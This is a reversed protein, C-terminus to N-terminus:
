QGIMIEFSFEESRGVGPGLLVPRKGLAFLGIDYPPSKENFIRRNRFGRAPHDGHEFGELEGRVTRVQRLSPAEEFRLRDLGVNAAHKLHRAHADHHHGVIWEIRLFGCDPQLPDCVM